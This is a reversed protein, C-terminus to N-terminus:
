RTPHRWKASLIAALRDIAKLKRFLKGELPRFREDSAIFRFGGRFRIALGIVRRDAEILFHNSLMTRLEM